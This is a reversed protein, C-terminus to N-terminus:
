EGIDSRERNCSNVNGGKEKAAIQQIVVNGIDFTLLGSVGSTTALDQTM